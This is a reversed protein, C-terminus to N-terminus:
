SARWRSASPDTTSGAIRNRIAIVTITRLLNKAHPHTGCDEIRDRKKNQQRNIEPYLRSDLGGARQLLFLFAQQLEAATDVRDANGTPRFRQTKLLVLVALKVVQDRRRPLEHRM